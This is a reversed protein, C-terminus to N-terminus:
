WLEVLNRATCWSFTMRRRVIRGIRDTDQFACWGIFRGGIFQWQRFHNERLIRRCRDQLGATVVTVSVQIRQIVLGTM